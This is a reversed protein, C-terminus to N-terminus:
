RKAWTPCKPRTSRRTILANNRTACGRETTVDLRAVVAAHRANGVIGAAVAMARLTLAHRPRL